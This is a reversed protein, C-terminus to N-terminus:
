KFSKTVIFFRTRKKPQCEGAVNSPFFKHGVSTDDASEGGRAHKEDATLSCRLNRAGARVTLNERADVLDAALDSDNSL